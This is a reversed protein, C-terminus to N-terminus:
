NLNSQKVPFNSDDILETIPFFSIDDDFILEQLSSEKMSMVIAYNDIVKINIELDSLKSPLRFLKNIAYNQVYSSNGIEIEGELILLIRDMQILEQIKFDTDVIHMQFRKSIELLNQNNFDKFVGSNKLMEFKRLEGTSESDGLFGQYDDEPLRGIVSSYTDKDLKYVLSYALERLIKESNFMQAVVDRTLRYEDMRYLIQLACLRTYTRIQNYDRNILGILLDIPKTIDIPFEAQLNYIKENMGTDDLLPFLYSKAEEEVFLDLLEIAFGIGEPTGSEINKRIHYISQPDYAISLLGYIMDLNDAIEDGLADSLISDMQFEMVSHQAAMNWAAVGAINNLTEFVKLSEAENLPYHNKVLGRITESLVRRNNHDLKNILKSAALPTKFHSMVRTIRVMGKENMGTKYFGHELNELISDDMNCLANFSYSYFEPDVLLDILYTVFDKKSLQGAARIASIRVSNDQDRFMPVIRPFFKPDNKKLIANLGKRRDEASDSKLLNNLNNEEINTQSINFSNLIRDIYQIEEPSFSQKIEALHTSSEFLYLKEILKLTIERVEENEELLGQLNKLVYGDWAQPALQLVAKIHAVNKGPLIKELLPVPEYEDKSSQQFKKLSSSLSEKYAKYLKFGVVMWIILIFILFYTYYILTVFTLLGLGALLLGSSFASLENVTGDIRAQINYRSDSDLSQYLIKSSPVEISDKLSKAFLKSLVIILFFFAFGASAATYGFVSGVFSAGITLLGVIFPSLILALKLGYTKMLKDYVFTKILITFITLAGMFAGLFSALDNPNPYNEKMVTMFSFHVFFAAAVSLVVFLAMLSTYRNNFLDFFNQKNVKVEKPAMKIEPELRGALIIQMILAIFISVACIVLTNLVKFQFSILIPIAFSSIIIGLIQGTDIIGFIRKGQRLTFIRSVTGWFGLFSIITLPGWMVFIIFALRKDETLEFGLRLLSTAIVIFILNLVAFNGFKMRAQLKTYISTIIIGVVGSVVFAKPILSADYVRLFLSQAGVDFAGAFIGLFVSQILLIKVNFKEKESINLAYTAM